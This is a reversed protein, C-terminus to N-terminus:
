VSLVPIYSERITGYGSARLRGGSPRGIILVDANTQMTAQSLMKPVDGSGIFVEAKTGVEQQLSALQRNASSVLAETWSPDVQYPGPGYNEEGAIIHALTLRADFEAAMQAAWQVTKTSHPSLDVACLISCISFERASEKELHAGTWVPCDSDHLVKATVSGLLFRRFAGYGHTPMAILDAKENRATQVITLAPDGELLIRRVAIGDLEPGLARDLQKQAQRLLEKLLADLNAPVYNEEIMAASYSMPTVVHLMVIESHFHRALSAAQHVVAKSTGQFDIPLLIRGIKLM